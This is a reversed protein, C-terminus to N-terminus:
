ALLPLLARVDEISRMTDNLHTCTTIGTFEERVGPRLGRLARGALRNGSAEAEICEVWPLSHAAASSGIISQTTGDVLVNVTYEHIVTEVGEPNMHSDRFYAEVDYLGGPEAPPRVDLRRWRRMDHAGLPRLEHWGIEDDDVLPPAIPGTVTPAHRGADVEIMITSGKQFGACLGEIQLRPGERKHGDLAGAAGVAYGSVLAAGTLDDLLLHLLTARDNEDPMAEVVAARFGTSVSRGILLSLSQHQPTATLELLEYNRSHAIRSELAVEGVVRTTGDAATLLDRARGFQVVDGHIGVPRTSDITSTRRISGPTRASQVLRPAHVGHRSHLPRSIISVPVSSSAANDPM